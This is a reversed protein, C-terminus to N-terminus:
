KAKRYDYVQDPIKLKVGNINVIDNTEWYVDATDWHYAWYINKPKRDEVRFVLEGRIANDTTAGGSSIYIRISHKHDPSVVEKVFKGKPLHNIDTTYINITKWFGFVIIFVGLFIGLLIFGNKRRM